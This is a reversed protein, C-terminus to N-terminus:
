LNREVVKKFQDKNLLGVSTELVEGDEVIVVTPISRVGFETAAKPDEDIDIVKFAVSDNDKYEEKVSEFVPTFTKCPQCWTAEFKIITIM